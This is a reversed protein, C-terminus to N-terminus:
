RVLSISSDRAYGLLNIKHDKFELPALAASLTIKRKVEEPDYDMVAPAKTWRVRAPRHGQDHLAHAEALSTKGCGGHGVLAVNRLKDATYKKM